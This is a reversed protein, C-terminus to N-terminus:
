VRGVIFGVIARALIAIILGVIAYQLTNKASVTRAPDGGATIYKIGAIMIFFVSVIAAIYIIADVFTVIYGGGGAPALKKGDCGALFSAKDCVKDIGQALVLGPAALVLFLASGWLYAIVRNLTLAKM